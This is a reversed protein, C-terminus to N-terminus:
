PETANKLISQATITLTTQDEVDSFILTKNNSFWGHNSFNRHSIQHFSLQWHQTSTTFRCNTKHLHLSLSVHQIQLPTRTHRSEGPDAFTNWKKWPQLIDLPLTEHPAKNAAPRWPAMTTNHWCTNRWCTNHRLHLHLLWVVRHNHLAFTRDQVKRLTRHKQTTPQLITKDFPTHHKHALM